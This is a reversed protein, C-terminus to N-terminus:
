QKTKKKTHSKIDKEINRAAILGHLIAPAMGDGNLQHAGAFYLNKIYFEKAEVMSRAVVSNEMTHRYGYICGQYAGIYHAISIPTEIIIEKIHDKLNVGLRKSEQEIFYMANKYKIEEYNEETVGFFAKPMPLYTMSYICTGKPSINPIAVNHCVSTIFKYPGETFGAEWITHFDLDEPSYFTSYNKINLEQYPKDLLLVVSFCSVGIEKSNVSKFAKSPVESKPEIMKSYVADPYACCVVYDALIIDGRKLTVGYAKKDKVLIKDVRQGYEVQAGLQEARENLKLAMEYSTHRPIYAGYGLYDAIIFSYINFPLDEVPSGLYLWYGSLIDKATQPIKYSDLVEKTSYGAARVLEIDEKVTKLLSKPKKAIENSSNYISLCDKFFRMLEKFIPGNEENEGCYRAIEKAPVGYDGDIGGHLTIDIKPTVLNFADPVRVFDIDVGMDMFEKRIYLPFTESGIGNMEHLSAEFEVEGRVYSAACGGPLNHQELVLVSKGSKALQIASTLGSLSAGIIIVDYKEKFYQPKKM